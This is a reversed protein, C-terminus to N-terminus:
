YRWLLLRAMILLLSLSIWFAMRAVISGYASHGGTRVALWGFVLALILYRWPAPVSFVLFGSPWISFWAALAIAMYPGARAADGANLAGGAAAGALFAAIIGGYALILTHINIAAWHPVVVPSLWILAAGFVFPAAAYLGFRTLDDHQSM